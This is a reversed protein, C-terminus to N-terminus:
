FALKELSVSSRWSSILQLGLDEAVEQFSTATSTGPIYPSTYYDVLSPFVDDEVRKVDGM